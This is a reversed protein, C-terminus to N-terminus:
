GHRCPNCAALFAGAGQDACAARAFAAVADFPRGNASAENLEATVDAYGKFRGTLQVKQGRSHQDAIRCSPPHLWPLAAVITTSTANQAQEAFFSSPVPDPHYLCCGCRPQAGPPAGLGCCVQSLQTTQALFRSLCLRVSAQRAGQRFCLIWCGGNPRSGTRRCAIM